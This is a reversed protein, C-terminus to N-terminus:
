GTRQAAGAAGCQALDLAGSRDEARGPGAGRPPPGDDEHGSGADAEETTMIEALAAFSLSAERWARLIGQRRRPSAQELAHERLRARARRCCGAMRELEALLLSPGNPGPSPEAAAVVELAKLYLHPDALLHRRQEADGERWGAYLHEVQRVSVRTTGLATVLQACAEPNARALPVLYKSAAQAPLVALQVARQVPEPLVRVLGLHRSIWSSSRDLREGLQQQSLGHRVQLEHLLWADELASRRRSAELRHRLLLADVESLDLRLADVMDRALQRLAEVRLYGDILVLREPASGTVVLVPSQQGHEALSASLRAQRRRDQVRLGAYELALESIEVQV